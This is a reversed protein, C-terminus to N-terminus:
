WGLQRRAAIKAVTILVRDIDVPSLGIEVEALLAAALAAPNRTALHRIHEGTVADSFSVIGDGIITASFRAFIRGQSLTFRMAPPRYDRLPDAPATSRGPGFVAAFRRESETACVTVM